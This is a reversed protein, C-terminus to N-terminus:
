YLFHFMVPLYNPNKNKDTYVVLVGESKKGSGLLFDEEKVRGSITLDTGENSLQIKISTLVNDYLDKLEVNRYVEDFAKNGNITISFSGNSDVRVNNDWKMYTGDSLSGYGGSGFMKNFSDEKGKYESDEFDYLPDPQVSALTEQPEEPEESQEIEPEKSEIHQEIEEEKSEVPEEKPEEDLSTVLKVSPVGDLFHVLVDQYAIGILEKDKYKEITVTCPIEVMSGEMSKYFPDYYYYNTIKSSTDILKTNIVATNRIKDVININYTIDKKIKAKAELDLNLGCEYLAQINSNIDIKSNDTLVVTIKDEPFTQNYNAFRSPSYALTDGYRDRFDPLYIKSGTQNVIEVNEKNQQKAVEVNEKAKVINNRTITETAINFGVVGLVIILSVSLGVKVIPPLRLEDKDMSYLMFIITVIVVIASITCIIAM